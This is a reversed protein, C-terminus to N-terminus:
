HGRYLADIDAGYHEQVVKRKIKLTPTLEGDPETFDRPLIRFTKVQEAKSVTQNARDIATQIEERLQPNDRLDAVKASAPHGHNARWRQWAQPDITVLAAVYPRGDGLLMCQSILPYARIREEMPAPALNTGAATVIIDKTRGTIRLFGDEDLSGLDGTRLWRGDDFTDRTADPNNWYGAFVVEGRVLVEGDDAIRLEVGPLPRGVTGIRMASPRNATVAPSTETLGYGELVTIGAGRFFHGLREGLPAGGVIAMACRGGLAARIKRYAVVDCVGHVIRRLAGPGRPTDMARSYGVAVREAFTFLWGKRADDAEQRARNYMKEFMRPVALVFTPRYKRLQERVGTTDASHVMTVRAHVVGVQILRAFAHALPLFLVTSAGPHLVEPLVATASSVDCLINRHTLVCGKPRGTTGSTYVITAVDGSSVARRRADIQADDVDRGLGALALLGGAEIQWTHRLAPLDDRLGALIAAHEATEVVCGVAASDRLIWGLQDPSSTDYVPVTVAGISWLAYDVLTWEYRTRSMLGVRDGHGVGAAVFGRALSLVDDRFQRCTVPLAGGRVGRRAPWSRSVPDPRLFQVAEPDQRANEWVVEALGPVQAGTVVPEVRADQVVAGGSAAGNGVLCSTM